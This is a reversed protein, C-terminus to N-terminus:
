KYFNIWNELLRHGHETLIAEPHFQVGTLPLTKHRLAMISGDKSSATIDLCAPLTLPDIVLSHYRTVTLPNPLQAFIGQQNHQIPSTKGHMIQPAPIIQGGFAQGICQHGLCVGLIPLHDAFKSIVELCIGAQDPAAPGPSLVIRKPALQSIEACDIADHPKVLCTQGLSKFYDVLNYTFSDYNNIILLM